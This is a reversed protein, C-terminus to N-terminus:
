HAANGSHDEHHHSLLVQQLPQEEIFTRVQRWRNACGSDILTSGLRYCTAATNVAFNFRGARLGEVDAFSIRQEIAM